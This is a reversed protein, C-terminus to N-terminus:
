AICFALGDILDVLKDVEGHQIDLMHIGFGVPLQGADAVLQDEVVNFVDTMVQFLFDHDPDGADLAAELALKHAQLKNLGYVKDAEEGKPDYGYDLLKMEEMKAIMRKMGNKTQESLHIKDQFLEQYAQRKEQKVVSIQNGRAGKELFLDHYKGNQYLTAKTNAIQKTYGSEVSGVNKGHIFTADQVEVKVLTLHKAAYDLADQYQKLKEPDQKIAEPIANKLQEVQQARPYTVQEEPPYEMPNKWADLAEKAAKAQEPTLTDSLANVLPQNILAENSVGLYNQIAMSVFIREYERDSLKGEQVLRKAIEIAKVDRKGSFLKKEDDSLGNLLEPHEKMYTELYDVFIGSQEAEALRKEAEEQGYAKVMAQRLQALPMGMDRLVHQAYILKQLAMNQADAYAVYEAPQSGADPAPNHLFALYEESIAKYEAAFGELPKEQVKEQQAGAEPDGELVENQPGDQKEPEGQNAQLNEEAPKQPEEHWVADKKWDLGKQMDDYHKKWENADIRIGIKQLIALVDFFLKGDAGFPANEGDTGVQMIKEFNDEALLYNHLGDLKDADLQWAKKGAEGTIREPETILFGASGAYRGIERGVQDRNIRILRLNVSRMADQFKQVTEKEAEALPTKEMAKQYEEFTM